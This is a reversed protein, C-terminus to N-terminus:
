LYPNQEGALFIRKTYLLTNKEYEVSICFLIQRLQRAFFWKHFSKWRCETCTSGM